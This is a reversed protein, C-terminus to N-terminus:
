DARDEGAALRATEAAVLRQCHHRPPWQDRMGEVGQPDLRVVDHDATAIPGAHSAEVVSGTGAEAGEAAEVGRQEVGIMTARIRNQAGGDIDIRQGTAQARHEAGAGADKGRLPADAVPGDDGGRCEAAPRSVISAYKGNRTTIAACTRDRDKQWYAIGASVRTRRYGRRAIEAEAPSGARANVMDRLDFPTGSAVPPPPRHRAEQPSAPAAAILFLPTAAVCVFLPRRM